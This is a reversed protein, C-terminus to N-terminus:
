GLKRPLRLLMLSQLLLLQSQVSLPVQVLTDVLTEVTAAFQGLADSIYKASWQPM